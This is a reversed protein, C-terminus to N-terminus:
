VGKSGILSLLTLSGLKNRLVSADPYVYPDSTM